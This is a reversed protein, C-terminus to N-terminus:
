LHHDPRLRRGAAGAPGGAGDPGRRVALGLPHHDAAGGALTPEATMWYKGSFVRLTPADMIQPTLVKGSATVTRVVLEDTTESLVNGLRRLASEQFQNTLVFGTAVLALLIWGAALWILRRTLSRGPRGFWRGWGGPPTRRAGAGAETM